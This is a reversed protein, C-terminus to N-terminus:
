AAILDGFNKFFELLPKFCDHDLPIRFEESSSFHGAFGSDPRKKNTSALITQIRMKAQKGVSWDNAPTRAVFEDLQPKLKWKEYASHLCLSELNGETGIPIMLVVVIPKGAARAPTQEAQPIPFGKAKALQERVQKFSENPDSDNDSIVLVAKVNTIFM